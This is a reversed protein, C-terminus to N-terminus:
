VEEFSLTWSIDKDTYSTIGGGDVFLNIVQQAVDVDAFSLLEEADDEDFMPCPVMQLYGGVNASM